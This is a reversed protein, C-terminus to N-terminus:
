IILPQFQIAKIAHELYQSEKYVTDTFCFVLALMIGMPVNIFFGFIMASSSHIIFIGIFIIIFVFLSDKYLNNNQLHKNKFYLFLNFYIWFFLFLAYGVIGGNLLLTHHGVHQDAYQYFEQSFAFGFVPREWFKNLVRPGRVDLRILTHDATLDGRALAKVTQFREFSYEIQKSISPFYVLLLIFVIASLLGQKILSFPNRLVFLYFLIVMTSYSLIWGRTGSLIVMLFNLLLIFYYYKNNATKDKLSIFYMAGLMCLLSITPGYFVRNIGSNIDMTENAYRLNGFGSQVATEGFLFAIKSGTVLDYIQAGFLVISAIFLLEFLKYYDDCTPLLRPISFFMLFPLIHRVMKLARLFTTGLIFSVFLLFILYAAM